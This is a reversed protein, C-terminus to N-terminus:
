KRGNRESKRKKSTGKTEGDIRGKGNLYKGGSGDVVRGGNVVIAPVVFILLKM